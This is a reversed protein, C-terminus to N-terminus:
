TVPRDLWTWTRRAVLNMVDHAQALALQEDVNVNAFRMSGGTELAVPQSVPTIM